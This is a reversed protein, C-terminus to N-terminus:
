LTTQNDQLKKSDYLQVSDNLVDFWIGQGTYSFWIITDRCNLRQKFVNLSGAVKQIIQEVMLSNKSNPLKELTWNSNEKRYGLNM